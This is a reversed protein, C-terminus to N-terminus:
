RFALFGYTVFYVPHHGFPGDRRPDEAYKPIGYGVGGGVAVSGVAVVLACKPGCARAGVLAGVGGGLLAGLGAGTAPLTGARYADGFTLFATEADGPGTGRLGAQQKGFATGAAEASGWAQIRKEDNWLPNDINLFFTHWEAGAIGSGGLTSTGGRSPGRDLAYGDHISLLIGANVHGLWSASWAPDSAMGLDVYAQMVGVINNFWNALRREKMLAEIWAKRDKLAMAEFDSYTCDLNGVTGAVVGCHGSPDTYKLPNNFVMSYRNLAQPNGAGPVITDASIFRGLLPSYFRAGYHYLNGIAPEERQGTFKRDSFYANWESRKEGFPKYRVQGVTNGGGDTMLSASGLQDGHLWAMVWNDRMAVRQGNFLYYNTATESSWEAHSGLYATWKYGGLFRQQYNDLYANGANIWHHFNWQKGAPMSATLTAYPSGADREWVEAKFGNADDLILRVRYWTNVKVPNILDTHVVNGGIITQMFIKNVDAIVGFRSYGGQNTEVSFHAASNANDVKFDVVMSRGSILDCCYRAFNSAWTYGGPGTSKLVQQGGDNHGLTQYGNYQWLIGNTNEFGDEIFPKDSVQEVKKVLQGDADYFFQTDANRGGATSTVRTLRNDADWTQSYTTGGEKRLYMNGNADYWAMQANNNLSLNTLAHKHAADWYYMAVGGKSTLNGIADYSYTENTAGSASTLRDREDYGFSTNYGKDYEDFVSVNGVADYWYGINMRTNQTGGPNFAWDYCDNTESEPLVCVQRLRGFNQAGYGPPNVIDAGMYRYRTKLTNGWKITSPRGFANYKAESVYTQWGALSLPNGAASYNTTVHEGNPYTMQTVRDASDYAYSTSFQGVGHVSNLVQTARGRGDYTWRTWTGSEPFTQMCTRRGLANATWGTEDYCNAAIVTGSGPEGLRKYVLRNLADYDFGIVQGKADQQRILNGNLDYGYSWAGMDPDSMSTKRNLADYNIHTNNGPTAADWVDILNGAIDYDYRTTDYGGFNPYTGAYERVRIMRGLPDAIHQKLHGNADRIGTVAGVTNLGYDYTTTASDPGTVTLARGLADYTTVTKPKNLDPASYWPAADPADYPVSQASARGFVDYQTYSLNRGTAPWDAASRQSQVERGLGDYFVRSWGALTNLDVNCTGPVFWVGHTGCNAVATASSAKRTFTQVMFPPAIAGSLDSAGNKDLYFYEQTPQALTDGWKVLRKLRGLADYSYHTRVNNPDDVAELQGYQGRSNASAQNVNMYYYREVHGAPNTLQTMFLGMGDYAATTAPNGKPDQASTLNGAGAAAIAGVAAGDYGFLQSVNKENPCTSGTTARTVLGRTPTASTNTNNGDYYLLVQSKLGSACGPNFTTVIGAYTNVWAPRIIWTGAGTNWTYRTFDTRQGAGSSTRTWTKNEQRILPSALVSEYGHEVESWFNAGAGSNGFPYTRTKSLEAAWAAAPWGAALSSAAVDNWTHETLHLANGSGDLVSTTSERGLRHTDVHFLHRVTQLAAANWDYPAGARQVEEVQSHGVLTGNPENWDHGTRCTSYLTNYCAGTYAYTKFSAWGTNVDKQVFGNVRRYGTPLTEYNFETQGGYSNNVIKLHKTEDQPPAYAGYLFATGPRAYWNANDNSGVEIVSELQGYGNYNANYYRITAWGSGSKRNVWVNTLRGTDTTDTYSVSVQYQPWSAGRSNGYNVYLLRVRSDYDYGQGCDTQGNQNQGCASSVTEVYNYEASYLNNANDRGPVYVRKVYWTQVAAGHNGRSAYWKTSAGTGGFVWRTGDPLWVQWYPQSNWTAWPIAAQGNCTQGVQCKFARIPAYTEPVYEGYAGAAIGKPILNYEQGSISLRHDNDTLVEYWTAYAGTSPYYDDHRLFKIGQRIHPVDLSWGVGLRADDMGYGDAAASSYGLSLNPQLGGQMPMAEIPHAYNAAGRFSSVSGLNATLKWPQPGSQNKLGPIVEYVSFHDLKAMLTKRSADFTSPVRRSRIAEVTQPKGDPGIIEVKEPADPWYILVPEYGADLLDSSFVGDLNVTLTVPQKFTAAPGFQMLLGRQKTKTIPEAPYEVVTVDQNALVEDAAFELTVRSNAKLEKTAGDGKAQPKAARVVGVQLTPETVIPSALGKAEVRLPVRLTAPAGVTNVTLQFTDVQNVKTNDLALNAWRLTRTAPDYAAAKSSAAVYDLGAPLQATIVLDSLGASTSLVLNATVVDGAVVGRASFALNARAPQPLVIETDTIVTQEPLKDYDPMAPPTVPTGAGGGPLEPAISTDVTAAPISQTIANTPTIFTFPPVEPM